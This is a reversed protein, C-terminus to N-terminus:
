KRFLEFSKEGAIIAIDLHNVSPVLPCSYKPNYACYPNYAKNFDILVTEKLPFTFDLYRGGGYTLDGNTLDTFPLFVYDDEAGVERYVPLVYQRNNLEFFLNGYRIESTVSGTNTKMQITDKTVSERFFANVQYKSDPTFFDLGNFKKKEKSRLPSTNPDQFYANKNKQWEYVTKLNEPVTDLNIQNLDSHYRKDQCSIAILWLLSLFLHKVSIRVSYRLM